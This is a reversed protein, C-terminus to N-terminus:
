VSAPACFTACNAVISSRGYKSCSNGEKLFPPQWTLEAARVRRYDVARPSVSASPHGSVLSPLAAPQKGGASRAARADANRPFRFFPTARDRSLSSFESRDGQWPEGARADPPDQRIATTTTEPNASGYTSRDPMSTRRIHHLQRAPRPQLSNTQRAGIPQRPAAQGQAARQRQDQRADRQGGALGGSREFTGAVPRRYIEILEAICRLGLGALPDHLVQAPADPDVNYAHAVLDFYEEVDVALRCGSLIEDRGGVLKADLEEAIHLVAPGDLHRRVTSYGQRQDARHHRRSLGGISKGALKLFAVAVEEALGLDRDVGGLGM